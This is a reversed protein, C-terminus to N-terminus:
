APDTKAGEEERRRNAAAEKNAAEERPSPPEIRSSLWQYAGLAVLAFMASAFLTAPYVTLAIDDRGTKFVMVLAELSAAIVIITVFKTLSRRSEAPSRLERRRVIEEEAIFKATEVIAFGIILIGASDLLTTIRRETPLAVIADWTAVTLLTLALLVLIATALVFYILAMVSYFRFM